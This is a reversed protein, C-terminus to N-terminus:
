FKGFRAVAVALRLLYDHRSIAKAGLPATVATVM